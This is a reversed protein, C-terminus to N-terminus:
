NKLTSPLKGTKKKEEPSSSSSSSTSKEEVDDGPSDDDREDGTNVDEMDIFNELGCFGLIRNIKKIKRENSDSDKINFNIVTELKGDFKRHPSTHNLDLKTMEKATTESVKYKLELDFTSYDDLIYWEVQELQKQLNELAEENGQYKIFYLWSESESGSTEQLIAYTSM